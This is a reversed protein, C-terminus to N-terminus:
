NRSQVIYRSYVVNPRVFMGMTSVYIYMYVLNRNAGYYISTCRSIDESVAFRSTYEFETSATSLQRWARLSTPWLEPLPLESWTGGRTPMNGWVLQELIVVPALARWAGESETLVHNM